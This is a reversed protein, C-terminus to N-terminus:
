ASVEEQPAAAPTASAATAAAADDSAAPADQAVVAARGFRVGVADGRALRSAGHVTALVPAALGQVEISITSAGGLFYTDVITGRLGSTAADAPEVDEPRVVATAPTGAPLAHTAVVEGVGPVDVGTATATGDFLNATGIFSAVFRSAPHAYLEQPTALQELRGDRLVAIRDAMSMAEEQDHTVVVFTLGVEHQLRKLELQMSARVQRDLASLPEDLLLLRPRKVIARALAVRQRQGGSLQAPRRKALDGLGVVEM